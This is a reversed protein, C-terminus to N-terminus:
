NRPSWEDSAEWPFRGTRVYRAIGELNGPDSFVERNAQMARQRCSTLEDSVGNLYKKYRGVADRSLRRLQLLQKRLVKESDPECADLLGWELAQKAQVTRTTLTMYNARAVGVRRILFPLVCAPMLGFLLESLSFGANEEGLAIDCAAVFGVGGANVKGRVHAISVFPGKALQLWLDYLVAQDQEGGRGAGLHNREIESFDAGLCFVEPSGELVVIKAQENCAKLVEGLEHILQRNITDHDLRIVCVDTEFRVRLAQYRMAASMVGM